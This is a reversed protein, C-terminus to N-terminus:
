AADGDKLLIKATPIRNVEKDISISLIEYSSDMKSGGLSIEYSITDHQSPNPIILEEM